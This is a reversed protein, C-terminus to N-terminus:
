RREVAQAARVAAYADVLGAGTVHADSGCTDDPDRSAEAPTATERLIRSTTSVDGILAPNASWMLAVVGAVHPAAMSTGATARYGGGPVASLVDAGPAVVDPKAAGGAAPGRSSFTTVRRDRDVAGVTFVEAYPAPPDDISGCYPGTNGAAAVFYIGAAALAATAPRLTETACGEVPPCGWSNTLVQPAREPRGDVLPDAGAPFPALMFQLCDLYRAPSGLNRDLNVCGVWRAGPAVGVNRAGVATGLTHTGHGNQDTPAGSGNWPDYWSDDGGRFGGALAPHAGDVGSDSGGVVIGAGDTGLQSWVRDAGILRLNWTPATPAAVAGRMPTRGAPLPRLRQSVLVEAVDDRGSLWARVAPGGDVEVANVLYYPTHDLHLRDLQRRLDAQSRRATEVLRRYVERGRAERGAAGSPGAPVGSLDAQEKLVVFLRDGHWGPAGPGAYVVAAALLLVAAVAAAVPRRPFRAGSRGLGVGYGIGLLVAVALSAGAAVATWTPVDRAPVLLLTVEDPDVFLLPGAAAIGVLWGVVGSGAGGDRAGGALGAAARSVPRLGALAFGAPPLVLLAALPVGSQGTGAAVLALAVGAVLGGVLVLRPGGGPRGAATGAGTGAGAGTAGSPDPRSAGCRDYAAWFDSDLITAALWGIAAAASLGAATELVGGLAGVWLWPLLLALGAAVALGLAAPDTGARGPAGTRDKGADDGGARGPGPRHGAGARERHPGFRRVLVAALAATAALAALYGEHAPLPIARLLGLAGLALAGLLWARGAARVAPSRPLWCLLAAPPAVLLTTGAAALPGAWAPQDLGSILLFQGVLWGSGQGGVTVVVAWGGLFAAALVPWPNGPVGPPRGGPAVVAPPPFREGPPPPPGAQM